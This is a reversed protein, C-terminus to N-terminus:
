RVRQLKTLRGGFVVQSFYLNGDRDIAVSHPVAFAENRRKLPTTPRGDADRVFPFGPQTLPALNEGVLGALQDEHNLIMLRPPSFELVLLWAGDIAFATPSSLWGEGVTRRYRGTQDYVQIRSNGRDAVYFEPEGRRHDWFAIHPSRFRGGGEEGSLSGLYQGNSSYRHILSQGYGDAVWVDGNGGYRRESVGVWTPRYPGEAYAPHPPSALTMLANGALDVKLVASSNADKRAAYEDEARRRVSADALWLFEEGDEEVLTIGHAEEMAVPLTRLCAGESNFAVLSSKAPHFTWLENRRSAVVASHPWSRSSEAPDPLSAWPEIWEYRSDGLAVTMSTRVESIIDVMLQVGPGAPM